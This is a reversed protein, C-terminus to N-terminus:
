SNVFGAVFGGSSLYSHGDGVILNHSGVRHGAPLVHNAADTNANYGVVLNGLGNANSYTEANGNRVHVNADHFIVHPGVLGNITTQDVYVYQALALLSPPVGGNDNALDGAIRAQAEAAMANDTHNNAA